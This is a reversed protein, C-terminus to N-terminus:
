SLGQLSGAFAEHTIFMYLAYNPEVHYMGVRALMCGEHRKHIHCPITAHQLFRTALSDFPVIAAVMKFLELM